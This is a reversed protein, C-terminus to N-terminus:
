SKWETLFMFVHMIGTYCDAAAQILQLILVKSFSPRLSRPATISLLSTMALPLLPLDRRAAHQKPSCTFDWRSFDTSLKLAHRTTRLTPEGEAAGTHGQWWGQLVSSLLPQFNGNWLWNEAVFGLVRRHNTSPWVMGQRLPFLLSVRPPWMLLLWSRRDVRGPGPGAARPWCSRTEGREAVMCCGLCSKSPAMM